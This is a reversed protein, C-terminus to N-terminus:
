AHLTLRWEEIRSEKSDGNAMWCVEVLVVGGERFMFGTVYGVLSNDGDIVVRDRYGFRSVHEVAVAGGPDDREADREGGCFLVPQDAGDALLAFEGGGVDDDSGDRDGGYVADWADLAIDRLVRHQDVRGHQGVDVDEAGYEGGSLEREDCVAGNGHDQRFGGAGEDAGDGAAVAVGVGVGGDVM